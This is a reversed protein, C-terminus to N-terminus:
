IEPAQNHLAKYVINVTEAYILQNIILWGLEKILPQSHADYLSDAVIRAARNQLKQLRQINTSSASGWVPSYYRFYPETLSRYMM